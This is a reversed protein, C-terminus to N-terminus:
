VLSNTPLTLHTYSVPDLDTPNDFILLKVGTANASYVSFNVGEDDVTAGFPHPSGTFIRLTEGEPSLPRGKTAVVFSSISAVM